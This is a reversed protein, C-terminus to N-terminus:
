EPLELVDEERTGARELCLGVSNALPLGPRALNDCFVVQTDVLRDPHALLGSNDGVFHTGLIPVPTNTGHFFLHSTEAGADRLLAALYTHPNHFGHCHLLLAEEIGNFEHEAWANTTIWPFFNGVVLHFADPLHAQPCEDTGAEQVIRGADKLRPRLLTTEMWSVRKNLYSAGQGYNIGVALVVPLDQDKTVPDLDLVWGVAVQGQAPNGGEQALTIHRALDRCTVSQSRLRGACCPKRRRPVADASSVSAYPYSPDRILGNFLESFIDGNLEALIPRLESITM